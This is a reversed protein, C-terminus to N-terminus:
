GQRRGTLRRVSQVVGLVCMAPALWILVGGLGSETSGLGAPDQTLLRSVVLLVVGAIATLLTGVAALGFVRLGRSRIMAVVGDILFSAVLPVGVALAVLGAIMLLVAVFSEPDLV